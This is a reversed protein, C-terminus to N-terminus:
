RSTGKGAEAELNDRVTDVLDDWSAVFKEVGEKELTAIVDDYEIGVAALRDMVERADDLRTTVMDGHVEGHDAFARLTKEPMTNVTNPVVLETVYM